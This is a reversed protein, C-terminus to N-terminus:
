MQGTLYGVVVFSVLVVLLAGLPWSLLHRTLSRRAMM